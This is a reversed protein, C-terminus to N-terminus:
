ATTRRATSPTSGPSSPRVDRVIRRGRAGTRRVLETERRIFRETQRSPTFRRLSTAVAQASYGPADVVALRAPYRITEMFAGRDRATAWGIGFYVDSRTRGTIHPVGWRRDTRIRVGPRPHM